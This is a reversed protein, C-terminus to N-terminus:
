LNEFWMFDQYIELMDTSKFRWFNKHYEIKIVVRLPSNLGISEGKNNEYLRIKRAKLKFGSSFFRYTAYIWKMDAIKGFHM